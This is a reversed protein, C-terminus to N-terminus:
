PIMPVRHSQPMLAPPPPLQRLSSFMSIWHQALFKLSWKGTLLLWWLNKLFSVLLFYIYDPLCLASSCAQFGPTWTPSRPILWALFLRPKFCALSLPFPFSVLFTLPLTSSFSLPDILQFQPGLLLSLIHRQSRWCPVRISKVTHRCCSPSSWNEDKRPQSTSIDRTATGGCSNM